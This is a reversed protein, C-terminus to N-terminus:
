KPPPCWSQVNIESGPFEARMAKEVQKATTGKRVMLHVAAPLAEPRALDVLDPQDKFIEKFHEYAEQRTEERVSEFREDDRLKDAAARMVSDPDDGDFFVDMSRVCKDYQEPTLAHYGPPYVQEVQGAWVLAGVGVGAGLAVVVLVAVMWWPARRGATAVVAAQPAMRVGSQPAWVTGPPPVASGGLQPVGAGSAVPSGSMNPRPDVNSAGPATMEPQPPENSAQPSHPDPASREEPKEESM